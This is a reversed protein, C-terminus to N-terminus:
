DTPAQVGPRLKAAREARLHAAIALAVVAVPPLIALNVARWGATHQVAGVLLSSLAVSSFVLVDNLGQATAQEEPAHARSLLTTAGLFAFNWGLGLLIHGAWFHAVSTGSVHVVACTAFLLLGALVVQQSGFRSILRGTIFSPAFMAMVHWQIVLATSEFGHHCASMALPVATMIFTMGSGAVMAAVAALLFPPRRLLAGAAVGTRMSAAQLAPVHLFQLCFLALLAMASLLAYSAAFAVSWVGQTANALWPGLVAALVGASMVWALAQERREPEVSETAAFRYFTAFGNYAGVCCIGGCFLAFSARLIALTAIAGGLLGLAAGVSFGARRGVRAMIQAAPFITLLTALPLLAAPLTALRLDTALRAGVLSSETVMISSSSVALVQCVFYLSLNLSSRSM